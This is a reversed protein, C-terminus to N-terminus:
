TLGASAQSVTQPGATHEVVLFPLTQSVRNHLLSAINCQNDFSEELRVSDMGEAAYM